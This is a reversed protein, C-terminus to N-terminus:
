LLTPAICVALGTRATPQLLRSVNAMFRAWKPRTAGRTSPLVAGAKANSMCAAELTDINTSVAWITDFLEAERAMDQDYGDYKVKANTKKYAALQPKHAGVLWDKAVGDEFFRHIITSKKESPARVYVAHDGVIVM